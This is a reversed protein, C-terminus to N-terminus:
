VLEDKVSHVLRSPIDEEAAEITEVRGSTSRSIRYRFGDRIQTAKAPSRSKFLGEIVGQEEPSLEDMELQGKSRIHAGVGGFGALGGIREVQLLAM